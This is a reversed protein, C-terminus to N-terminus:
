HALLAHPSATSSARRRGVVWGDRIVYEVAPQFPHRYRFKGQRHYPMSGSIGACSSVEQQRLEWLSLREKACRVSVDFTDALREITDERSTALEVLPLALYSPILAYLSFRRAVEAVTHEPQPQDRTLILGLEYALNERQEHWALRTDIVITTHGGFNYQTTLTPMRHITIGAHHAIKTLDIEAPSTVRLSRYFDAIVFELPEMCRQIPMIHKM